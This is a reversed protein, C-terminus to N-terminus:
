QNINGSIDSNLTEDFAKRQPALSYKELSQVENKFHLTCSSLSTSGLVVPQLASVRIKAGDRRYNM